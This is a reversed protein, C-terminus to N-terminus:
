RRRCGRRFRKGRTLPSSGEDRLTLSKASRNEGRSRPHAWRVHLHLAFVPTKGAHAPILRIHRPSARRAALKGRTLPSSGVQMPVSTGPAHNEGRSRPHAESMMRGGGPPFTKGAHAPILGTRSYAAATGQPKGRTLPSSGQGVTPQQLVKLNEGRSRPHARLTKRIRTNTTTKGAHAPILRLLATFPSSSNPKGRTLPSSGSLASDGANPDLNEGRSRPHARM